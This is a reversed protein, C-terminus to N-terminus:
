RRGFIPAASPNWAKGLVFTPNGYNAIDQDRDRDRDRDQDRGRRAEGQAVAQPRDYARPSATVAVAAPIAAVYFAAATFCGTRM